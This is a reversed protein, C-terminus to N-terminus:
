KVQKTEADKHKKSKLHNGYSNKTGFHKNCLRCHGSTDQAQEEVQTRSLIPRTTIIKMYQFLIAGINLVGKTTRMSGYQPVVSPLVKRIM